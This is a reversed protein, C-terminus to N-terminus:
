GTTLLSRLVGSVMQEGTGDNNAMVLQLNMGERIKRKTKVNIDFMHGGGGILVGNGDHTTTAGGTWLIDEDVYTAVATPDLTTATGGIDEDVVCIYMFVTDDLISGTFPAVHLWGRITLLTAEKFPAFDTKSAMLQRTVTALPDVENMLIATWILNGKKRSGRASHNVRRNRSM